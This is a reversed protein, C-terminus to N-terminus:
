LPHLYIHYLLKNIIWIPKYGQARHLNKSNLSYESKEIFDQSIERLSKKEM